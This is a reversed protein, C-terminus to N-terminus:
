REKAAMIYDIEMTGPSSHAAGFSITQRDLSDPLNETGVTGSHVGNVFYKIESAGDYFYSLRIFTGDEMTAVTEITETSSRVVVLDVTAAGDSKRFYVGASVSLPTTDVVQLGMVMDSDIENNTKFRCDFWLKEGEIFLFNEGDKNSFISDGPTLSPFVNLIGGDGQGIQQFSTGVTTVIWDAATYYDFDEMYIHASAPDPLSFKGMPASPKVNTVGNPFRTPDSM